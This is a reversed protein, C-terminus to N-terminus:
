AALAVIIGYVFYAVVLSAFGVWFWSLAKKGRWGLGYRGAMLVAFVVWSITTLIAKHDLVAVTGYAQMMTVIGVVMLATLCVFGCLVIRYLIREMTILGPLNALLGQTQAAHATDKLRRNLLVLLIAQVLAIGMFSYAALALLLHARFAPSWESALVASGPFVVPTAASAAAVLLFIGMLASVRRVTSEVLFIGVALWVAVSLASAVGFYITEGSFMSCGLAVAHLVFAALTVTRVNGPSGADTRSLTRVISLGAALYMLAAALFLIFSLVGESM